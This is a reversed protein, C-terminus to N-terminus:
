LNKEYKRRESWTELLNAIDSIVTGNDNEQLIEHRMDKYLKYSVNNYGINKMHEVAQMFSKINTMCPDFEGSIFHIPMDPKAINWGEKSYAEKMQYLLATYGNLTFPFGCLEDNEYRKVNDKNVSLWAFDSGETKFNKNFVRVFLNECFKSKYKDGKMKTLADVIVMGVGAASNYSPSGCVILGNIDSDYKKCYARVAMSGMSHGFLYCPINPYEKKVVMTIQHIDEITAFGGGKYFYGLDDKNKVSKGHGRHDHIICLYGMNALYEMLPMYREKYESMGHVLQCVAKPETNPKVLLVDISVGDIDSIMKRYESTISM